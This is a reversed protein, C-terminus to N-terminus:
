DLSVGEFRDLRHNTVLRFEENDKVEKALGDFLDMLENHREKAKGELRQELKELKEDLDYKTSFNDRIWKKTGFNNNLWEKDTKILM